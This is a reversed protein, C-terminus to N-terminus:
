PSDDLFFHNSDPNTTVEPGKMLVIPLIFGWGLYTQVQMISLVDSRRSPPAFNFPVKKHWFHIKRKNGM